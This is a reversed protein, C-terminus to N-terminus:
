FIDPYSLKALKILTGKNYGIHRYNDSFSRWQNATVSVDYKGSSKSWNDYLEFGVSLNKKRIIEDGSSQYGVCYVAFGVAVWVNWPQGDEGNPICKLIFDISDDSFSTKIFNEYLNFINPLYEKSLFNWNSIKEGEDILVDDQVLSEKTSKTMRTKNKRDYPLKPLDELTIVKETEDVYGLFYDLENESSFDKVPKLPRFDSRKGCHITRFNQWSFYVTSDIVTNLSSCTTLVNKTNHLHHM